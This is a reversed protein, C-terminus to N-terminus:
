RKVTRAWGTTCSTFPGREPDRVTRRCSSLSSFTAIIALLPFISDFCRRNGCFRANNACREKSYLDEAEMPDLESKEREQCYWSKKLTGVGDHKIDFLVKEKALEEPYAMSEVDIKDLKKHVSPPPFFCFHIFM